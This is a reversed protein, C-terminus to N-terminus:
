LPVGKQAIGCTDADGDDASTATVDGLAVSVMLNFTEEVDTVATLSTNASLTEAFTAEFTIEFIGCQLRRERLHTTDECAVFLAIIDDSEVGGEGLDNM